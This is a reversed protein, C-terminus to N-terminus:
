SRFFIKIRNVPTNPSLVRNECLGVSSNDGAEMRPIRTQDQLRSWVALPHLELDQDIPMGRTGRSGSEADYPAKALCV